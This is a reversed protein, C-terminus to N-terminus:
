GVGAAVRVHREVKARVLLLTLVVLLILALYLALYARLIPRVGTDWGAVVEIAIQPTAARMPSTVDGMGGSVADRRHKSTLAGDVRGIVATM